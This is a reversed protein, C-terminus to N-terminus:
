RLLLDLFAVLVEHIFAPVFKADDGFARSNLRPDVTVQDFVIGVLVEVLGVGSAKDAELGMAQTLPLESQGNVGAPANRDALRQHDLEPVDPDLRQLCVSVSFLEGGIFVSSHRDSVLGKDSSMQM